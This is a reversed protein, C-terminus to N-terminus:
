DHFVSLPDCRCTDTRSHFFIYSTNHGTIGEHYFPGEIAGGAREPGVESVTAPRGKPLKFVRIMFYLSRKTATRTTNTTPIIITGNGVQSSSMRRVICIVM